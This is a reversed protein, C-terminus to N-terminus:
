KGAIVTVLGNKIDADVESFGASILHDKVWIPSLRLKRYFSKKLRWAGDTQLYVLDHVKVTDPEYELFCTLITDDDQKVPIFRDLNELADSLDRFTIVFQGAPELHNFVQSFLKSVKDKTELHLLTDTMCIILESSAPVHSAFNLMDDCVVAVQETVDHVKLEALLNEDLDIATVSFGRAALPISQFGCGAGLDVAVASGTPHISLTEFFNRNKTLQSEFGGLMWSYVDSLVNQYHAAVTAM